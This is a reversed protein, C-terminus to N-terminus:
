AAEEDQYAALLERIVQDSNYRAKRVAEDKDKMQFLTGQGDTMTRFTVRKYLANNCVEIKERAFLAMVSKIPQTNRDLSEYENFVVRYNPMPRKEAASRKRISAILNAVQTADFSHIKCPVVLLHSLQALQYITDGAYGPTDIIIADHDTMGGVANVLTDDGPLPVLDINTPTHGRAVSLKHWQSASRQPDADVLAVRYDQQALEGAFLIALTTKGAGGKPTAITFIAPM